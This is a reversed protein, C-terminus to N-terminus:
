ESRLVTPFSPLGTIILRPIAAVILSRNSLASYTRESPFWCTIKHSRPTLLKSGAARLM